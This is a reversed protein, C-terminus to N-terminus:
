RLVCCLIVLIVVVAVIALVFVIIGGVIAPLNNANSPSPPPRTTPEPTADPPITLLAGQSRNRFGMVEDGDLEAVAVVDFQYEVNNMLNDIIVSNQSSPVNDSQEEESSETLSYYVIYGTIEPIDLRDWSVRVSTASTEQVGINM